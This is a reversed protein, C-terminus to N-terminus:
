AGVVSVRMGYASLAGCHRHVAVRPMGLLRAM